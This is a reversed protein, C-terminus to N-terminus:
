FNVDYLLPLPYVIQKDFQIHAIGLLLMATISFLRISPRDAKIVM